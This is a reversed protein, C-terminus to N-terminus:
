LTYIYDPRPGTGLIWHYLNVIKKSVSEMSYNRHILKIGSQGMQYLEENSTYFAREIALNIEQQEYPIWWGCNFTNLEEWPSGHTAICPIGRILGEVIVMGFNEFESPMALVSVSQIAKEKEKGSLFGTFKVNELNLRKVEDKLFKEYNDDGGGIILLQSKEFKELFENNHLYKKRLEYWAYILGEVNKRPSLRGLYGLVFSENSFKKVKYEKIEIPNPIVAIPSTVGIERCYRMEEICTTQICAAENLDKLLRLNLSLKKFKANSKTIDQPYLMGHPMVIYPKKQRRAIDIVAYTNYLWIGNAHYIDYRGINILDKKYKISYNIKNLKLKHPQKTYHVPIDQGVLKSDKKHEFAFLEADCGQERLGKLMYYICTAAGGATTEITGTHLVRM